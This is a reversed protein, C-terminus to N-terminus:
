DDYVVKVLMAITAYSSFYAALFYMYYYNENIMYMSFLVIPFIIASPFILSAKGKAVLFQSLPAVGSAFIGALVTTIVYEFGFVQNYLLYISFIVAFISSILIYLYSTSLSHEAESNKSLSFHSIMLPTLSNPIFVLLSFVQYGFGFYVYTGSIEHNGKVLGHYCFISAMWIVNSPFIWSVGKLVDIVNKGLKNFSRLNLILNENLYGLRILFVILCMAYAAYSFSYVYLPNDNKVLTSVVHLLSLTLFFFMSSFLISSNNERAQLVPIAMSSIVTFFGLGLMPILNFRSVNESNFFYVGAFTVLIIAILFVVSFHSSIVKSVDDVISLKRILSPAVGASILVTFMVSYVTM